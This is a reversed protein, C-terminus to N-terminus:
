VVLLDSDFKYTAVDIRSERIETSPFRDVTEHMAAVAQLITMSIDIFQLFWSLAISRLQTILVPGVFYEHSATLEIALVLYDVSM